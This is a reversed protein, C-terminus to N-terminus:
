RCALGARDLTVLDAVSHPLDDAGVAPARHRSRERGKSPPHIKPIAGRM